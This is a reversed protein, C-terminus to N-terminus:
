AIMLTPPTVPRIGTVPSVRGKKEAPPLEKNTVRAAVPRSSFTARLTLHAAGEGDDGTPAGGAMHQRCQCDGVAQHCRPVRRIRDVVDAGATADLGGDHRGGTIRM